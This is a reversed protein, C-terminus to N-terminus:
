DRLLPTCLTKSARPWRRKLHGLTFTTMLKRDDLFVNKCEQGLLKQNGKKTM